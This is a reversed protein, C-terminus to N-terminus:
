LDSPPWSPVGVGAALGPQGRDLRKGVDLAAKLGQFDPPDLNLVGLCVVDDGGRYAPHWGAPVDQDRGAVPVLVLEDGVADEDQIGGHAGAVAEDAGLLDLGAVPNRGAGPAAPGSQGSVRGVADLADGADARGGCGGGEPRGAGGGGAPSVPRLPCRMRSLMVAATRHRSRARMRVSMGDRVGWVALWGGRQGCGGVDDRQEVQPSLPTDRTAQGPSLGLNHEWTLDSRQWCPDRITDAADAPSRARSVDLAQRADIGKGAMTWVGEAM